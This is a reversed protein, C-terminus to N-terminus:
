VFSTARHQLDESVRTDRRLPGFYGRPHTGPRDFVSFEQLKIPAAAVWIQLRRCQCHVHLYVSYLPGDITRSGNQGM